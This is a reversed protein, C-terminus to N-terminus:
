FSVGLFFAAENKRLINDQGGWRMYRVQRLIALHGIRYRVGAAFTAGV